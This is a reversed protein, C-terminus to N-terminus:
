TPFTKGSYYMDLNPLTNYMPNGKFITWLQLSDLLVMYNWDQEDISTRLKDIWPAPLSKLLGVWRPALM